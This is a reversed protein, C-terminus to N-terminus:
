ERTSDGTYLTMIRYFRLLPDIKSQMAKNKEIEDIGAANSSAKHGIQTSSKNSRIEQNMIDDAHQLRSQENEIGGWTTPDEEKFATYGDDIYEERCQDAYADESIHRFIGAMQFLKFERYNHDNLPNKKTDIELSLIKLIRILEPFRAHEILSNLMDKHQINGLVEVAKDSLGTTERLDNSHPRMNESRGMLYDLSCGTKECLTNLFAIDPTRHGGEYYSITARAMGLAKAFDDQSIGIEERLTRLRKSFVDTIDM